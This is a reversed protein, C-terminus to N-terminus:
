VLYGRRKARGPADPRLILNNEVKEAPNLVRRANTLSEILYDDVFLQKDSGIRILEASAPGAFLGPLLFSILLSTRM